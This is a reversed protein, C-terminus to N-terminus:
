VTGNHRRPLEQLSHVIDGIALIVAEELDVGGSEANYLEGLHTTFFLKVFMPLFIM